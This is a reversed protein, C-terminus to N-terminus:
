VVEWHRLWQYEPTLNAYYDRTCERIAAKDESTEAVDREYAGKVNEALERDMTVLQLLGRMEPVVQHASQRWEEQSVVLPLTFTFTTGDGEESTVKITGGHM